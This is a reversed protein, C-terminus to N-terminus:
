DIPYESENSPSDERERAVSWISAVDDALEAIVAELPSPGLLDEFM